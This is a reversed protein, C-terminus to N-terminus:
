PRLRTGLLYHELSTTKPSAAVKFLWMYITDGFKELYM